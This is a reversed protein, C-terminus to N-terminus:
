PEQSTGGFKVTRFGLTRSPERSAGLPQSGRRITECDASVKDVRDALVSDKGGGCRVTDRAGDRAFVTDDGAGADVVDRGTGGYLIDAGGRGLLTDAGGRGRLVDACATGVLRNPKANGSATRGKCASPITSPPATNSTELRLSVEARNDAPNAERDARVIAIIVGPGNVRVAFVIKATAGVPLFDLNCVIPQTGTCGSGRDFAPQGLLTTTTPLTISLLTRLASQTGVNTVTAVLDSEAGSALVVSSASLTVRLDPIGGGGGSGGGGPPPAPPPPATSFDAFLDRPGVTTFTCSESASTCDGSWGNFVSGTNPLATVTVTTGDAFVGDCGAPPCVAGAPSFLVGGSGDGSFDVHLPFSAATAWFPLEDRGASMTLRTAVGGAAPMTFLEDEGIAVDQSFVLTTGDPSWAVSNVLSSTTPTSTGDVLRTQNSGDANMVYLDGDDVTGSVPGRVFAIKTGDPSWAPNHDDVTESTLGTATEQRGDARVVVIHSRSGPTASRYSYAVKTGDPSWSADRVLGMPVPFIFHDTAGNNVRIGARAPDSAVYAIRSGLDPSWTPFAGTANLSFPESGDPNAVVIVGDQVYALADGAVTLSPESDFGVRNTVRLLGTGNPFMSYIEYNSPGDRNSAWFIRGNLHTAATQGVIGTPDSTNKVTSGGFTLTSEFRLATGIDRRQVVYDPQFVDAIASCAYETCRLWQGSIGGGTTFRGYTGFLRDGVKPASASLDPPQIPCPVGDPQVGWSLHLNGTAGDYGDVPFVYTQTGDTSTGFCIRSATTDDTLDDNAAIRGGPGFLDILTDYDSGETSIYVTADRGTGFNPTWSFWVSAGGRDGAHDGEGAEKTAEATSQTLSGGAVGPAIVTANAKNDNGPPAAIAAPAVALGLM